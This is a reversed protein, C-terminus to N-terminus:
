MGEKRREKEYFFIGLFFSLALLCLVSSFSLAKARLSFDLFAPPHSTLALLSSTWTETLQHLLHSLPPLWPAFFFAAFLLFMSLSACLPFFLNYVFSLLPFKHFLYLIVPLTILHVALNLSLTKRFFHSLLYGHRDILSMTLVQKYSREPLLFTFAWHVIPYFLLIALTCLFTLQFSLQTVVLPDGLLEVILGAGLANLGSIHLSFLHGIVFFLIAVYARLISPDNGLFFYYFTLAAILLVDSIRYPLFLRLFFNLFFAILAFHFGGITLIHQLGVRGLEMNLIREDIEGTTMAILFHSTPPDKCQKKLYAAVKQKAKFRWEAFNYGTSLSDWSKKKEPKLVFVYDGKQSLKGSILYDTDAVPRKGFPPLYVRCPLNSYTVADATTFDKLTGQYVISRSFPSAQRKVQEIHLKGRGTVGEEPLLVHPSRLPVSIWMGIFCLCGLLFLKKQGCSVCLALFFLPFLFHFSLASAAGLLLSLGLFLAPNRGWFSSFASLNM